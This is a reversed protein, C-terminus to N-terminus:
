ILFLLPGLISGQPLGCEIIDTMSKIGNYTVYQIRNSLYDKFLKLTIDQLGYLELKQLLIGHDVTDFTSFFVLSASERTWLKLLKILWPWWPWVQPSEKKFVLNINNLLGNENIFEILRNFMLRELIKSFWQYSLYQDTIQLFQKMALKSYQYWM